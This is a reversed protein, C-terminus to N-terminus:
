AGYARAVLAEIPAEEVTVERVGPVALVARLVAADPEAPDLPVALKGAGADYAGPIVTGPEVEAVVRRQGGLTSVLADLPGDHLLTGRSLLLVRPCLAAIDGLDHTTLLITTRGEDRLGALFARLRLKVAVDLGITPEDLLLLPPAHLLAAALECRMRAGLSLQRVPTRLLPGIGLTDDLRSLRARYEGPPVEFMAALLDFGEIVALDWWLQTRQGFVVGMRRVHREREAWPDLGGVRITGATPQLIGCIMKVITSKGAGNPGLLAVAEGPAVEFSIGDVATSERQEARFLDRLAGGLGRSRDRVVFRRTLAEARIM